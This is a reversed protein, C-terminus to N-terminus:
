QTSWQKLDEGCNSCFNLQKKPQPPFYRGGGLPQDDEGYVLIPIDYAYIPRKTEGFSISDVQTRTLWIPHRRKKTVRDKELEVHYYYLFDMLDKGQLM